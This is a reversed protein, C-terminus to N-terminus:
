IRRMVGDISIGSGDVEKSESRFFEERNVELSDSIKV